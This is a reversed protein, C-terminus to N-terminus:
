KARGQSIENKDEEEIAADIMDLIQKAIEDYSNSEDSSITPTIVENQSDLLDLIDSDIDMHQLGSLGNSYLRFMENSENEHIWQEDLARSDRRARQGLNLNDIGM